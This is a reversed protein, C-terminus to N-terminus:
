PFRQNESMSRNPRGILYVYDRVPRDEGGWRRRGLPPGFPFLYLCNQVLRHLKGDEKHVSYPGRVGLACESLTARASEATSSQKENLAPYKWNGVM